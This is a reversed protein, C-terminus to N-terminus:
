PPKRSMAVEDGALRRPVRSTPVAATSPRRVAQPLPSTPAAGAFVTDPEAAGAVSGESAPSDVPEGAAESVGEGTVWLPPVM